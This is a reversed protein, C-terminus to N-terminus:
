FQIVSSYDSCNYWLLEINFKGCGESPKIIIAYSMLISKIESIFKQVKSNPNRYIVGFILVRQFNVCLYETAESPHKKGVSTFYGLGAKM